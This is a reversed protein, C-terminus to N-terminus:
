ESTHTTQPATCIVWRINTAQGWFTTMNKDIFNEGREKLPLALSLLGLGIVQSQNSKLVYKHTM